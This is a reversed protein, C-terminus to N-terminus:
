HKVARHRPSPNQWSFGNKLTVSTGGMTVIVDSTGAPRSPFTAQLSIPTISGPVIPAAIGGVTVSSALATTFGTGSITVVVPGSGSTGSPVVIGPTVNTVTLPPVTYAFAGTGTAKSSDPNTVVVDVTLQETAPGLPARATISTASVVVVDTAERAGFKVTAGTQFGTGTITVPTGGSTPGNGPSVSVITPGGATYTFAQALTGFTGDSNTVTVDVKGAANAPATATISTANVLVNTAFVGGFKVTAGSRFNGGSITVVTGGATSGSAPAIGSITPTPNAVANVKLTGSMTSHGAGCSPITCVFFFTGSTTATFQFSKSQGRPCDLGNELYAEMFVGHGVISQDNAPVILTVNVVDGQDVVFPSPSVTFVWSTATITFNRVVAANVSAPQPIVPGHSSLTALLERLHALHEEQALPTMVMSHDHEQAVAGLAVFLMAVATFIARRM